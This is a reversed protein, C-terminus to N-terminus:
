HRDRVVLVSCPAVRAVQVALADDAIVILGCGTAAAAMPLKASQVSHLVSGHEAALRAATLHVSSPADDAVFITDWLPLDPPRRALLVSCYARRLVAKPTPGLADCGVVLVDAHDAARILGAAATAAPTARLTAEVDLASTIQEAQGLAAASTDLCPFGPSAPTVTVIELHARSGALDAAQRVAERAEATGDTGCVVTRPWTDAPAPDPGIRPHTLEIM